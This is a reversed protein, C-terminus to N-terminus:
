MNKSMHLLKFFYLKRSMKYSNALVDSLVYINEGAFQISRPSVFLIMDM